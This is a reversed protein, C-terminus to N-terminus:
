DFNVAHEAEDGVSKAFITLFLQFHCFIMNILTLFFDYFVAFFSFSQFDHIAFFRSFFTM